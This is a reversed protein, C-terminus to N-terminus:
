AALTGSSLLEPFNPHNLILNPDLDLKDIFTSLLHRNLQLRKYSAMSFVFPQSSLHCNYAQYKALNLSTLSANFHFDLRQSHPSQCDSLGTFQKPDRFIFEIQFRAQYYEVIQEPSLNIDTSFLLANKIKGNAQVESICVLCIQCNLCCSWVVLTSLSVGPKIEKVFNLRSLDQCDFKGDYKRPAGLKKQEGTYLYRLNADIRLKGIFNLNLERVTDWFKSRYYYGDAVLYRVSIPFFSRTNKLHKAYDDVRTIDPNSTETVQKKRQNKRPKKKTPTRTKKQLETQPRSPTQQVSLSYSLHTYVEVISIVSIELGQQANGAISNYFYAKGETKKGSKRLFSCDIVAIITQEPNLVEKLFYQHFQPFNFKKLFHRRYTKESFSSYRSLNTFNVKGYVLLITSFLILLFKKQPQRIGPMQQLISEIFNM